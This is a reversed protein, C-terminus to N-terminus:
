DVLGGMVVLAVVVLGVSVALAWAGLRVGSGKLDQVAGGDEGAAAAAAAAAERVADPVSVVPLPPLPVSSSLSSPPPPEPNGVGERTEEKEKKATGAWEGSVVRKLTAALRRAHKRPRLRRPQKKKKTNGMGDGDGGLSSSLRADEGQGGCGGADGFVAAALLADVADAPQKQEQEQPGEQPGGEEIDLAPM